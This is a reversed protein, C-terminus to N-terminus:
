GVGGGILWKLFYFMLPANFFFNDFRDIIGGHGPLISGFDKIGVERKVLSKSLDGLQGIIGMLAGLLLGWGFFIDCLHFGVATTIAATVVAGIFGAITKGPSIAPCLKPGGILRGCAFAGTDMAWCILFLLVALCFGLSLPADKIYFPAPGWSESRIRLLFSFLLGLYLPTLLTVSVDTLASAGGKSFIRSIFSGGIILVMLLGIVSNLLSSEAYFQTFFLLAIIFCACLPINPKAATLKIARSWESLGILALMTTAACLPWGGLYCLALMLPLGFIFSLVRLRFM